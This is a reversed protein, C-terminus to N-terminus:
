IEFTNHLFYYDKIAKDIYEPMYEIVVEKVNFQRLTKLIFGTPVMGPYNIPKHESKTSNNERQSFHLIDTNMLLFRFLQESKFWEQELHSTDLTIRGCTKLIHLPTLLKKRKKYKFNEPYIWNYVAFEEGFHNPHATVMFESNQDIKRSYFYEKLEILKEIYDSINDERNSNFGHLSSIKLNEPIYRRLNIFDEYHFFALQCNIGKNSIKELRHIDSEDNIFCGISIIV